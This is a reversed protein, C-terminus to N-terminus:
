SPLMFFGRPNVSSVMGAAVAYGLPLLGALGAVSAEAGNRLNILLFLFAVVILAPVALSVLTAM